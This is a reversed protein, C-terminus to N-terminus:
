SAQGPPRPAMQQDWEGTRGTAALRGQIHEVIDYLMAESSRSEAVVVLSPKNSSARVLGWSKDDLVFRIGNVRILETIHRGAITRHSAYDAEYQAAVEEVVAYKIEDACYAGLTPSQWTRPLADVLESLRHSTGALLRLVVAAALMADDYGRGIPASLFWHGSKEFGAIANVEAVKAKIYSHGTKWTVVSTNSARLIPDDYFLSTSKVDIVVSRGPHEQCLHQAVLLGMKDSFVERGKDDVVGIRDGDGDIGIGLDASSEVTTKAISHLFALDEPNPNYNPFTWDPTCALEVAECGLGKLLRPAFHGATGNGAAIVVKMRKPVSVKDLLDKLYEDFLGEAASYRGQGVRFEGGHVLNKFDQIEDPGLTSSLGKALKVGTWGNENHSATVMAAGKVGYLHQAFYVMPTLALGIDIVEAGASLLGVVLSRSLDQSYQRFDHGVIVKTENYREKLYTAYAMGLVVFGNPNIEKGLLWRVDYERFGNDTMLTREFYDYSNFAVDKCLTWRM